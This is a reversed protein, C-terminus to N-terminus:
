KAILVKKALNIKAALYDSGGRDPHMKQMLKRHAMVIEKESASSKIGLIEYAEAKTMKGANHSTNSSSSHSNNKNFTAWLHHLQPMYRMLLPLIRLIFAVFVGVLAFLWNLRGTAAFLVIVTLLIYVGTKNKMRTLMEPAHQKLKNLVFFALLISAIVIFIRIM